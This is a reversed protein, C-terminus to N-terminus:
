LRRQREPLQALAVQVAARREETLLGDDVDPAGPDIRDQIEAIPQMRRADRAAALAERRATTALWAGVAAPDKLSGIHEVLHLWTAAVADAQQGDALRFTSVVYSVLRGFQDVLEVWAQEEGRVAREVMDAVHQDLIQSRM